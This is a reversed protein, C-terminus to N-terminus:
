PIEDEEEEATAEEVVPIEDEEDYSDMCTHPATEGNGLSV